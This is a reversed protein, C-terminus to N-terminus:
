EQLNIRRVALVVSRLVQAELYANNRNHDCTELTARQECAEASRELEDAVDRAVLCRVGGRRATARATM